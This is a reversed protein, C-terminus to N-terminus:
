ENVARARVTDIVSSKWKLQRVPVGDSHRKGVDLMISYDVGDGIAEWSGCIKHQMGAGALIENVRRGTLGLQKGIENPTLLQEQEPAKLEVNM